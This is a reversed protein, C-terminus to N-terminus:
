VRKLGRLGVVSCCLILFLIQRNRLVNLEQRTSTLRVEQLSFRGFVRRSRLLLLRLFFLTFFLLLIFLIDALYFLEILEKWILNKPDARPHCKERFSELPPSPDARSVCRIRNVESQRPLDLLGFSRAKQEKSHDICANQPELRALDLLSMQHRWCWASLEQTSWTLQKIVRNSWTMKLKWRVPITGIEDSPMRKPLAILRWDHSNRRSNM